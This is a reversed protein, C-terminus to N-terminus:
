NVDGNREAGHGKHLGGLKSLARVSRRGFFQPNLSALSERTPYVASVVQTGLPVPNGTLARCKANM